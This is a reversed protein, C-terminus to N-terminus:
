LVLIKKIRFKGELDIVQVIYVGKLNENLIVKRGSLEYINFKVDPLNVNIKGGKSYVVVDDKFSLSENSLTVTNSKLSYQLILPNWSEGYESWNVGNDKSTMLLGNNLFSNTTSPENYTGFISFEENSTSFVIHYKTNNSLNIDGMFTSINLGESHSRHTNDFSANEVIFGILDNPVNNDDSYISINLGSKVGSGSSAIKIELSFISDDGSTFSQSMISNKNIIIHGDGGSNLNTIEQSYINVSIVLLLIKKM